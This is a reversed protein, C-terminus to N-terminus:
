GSVPFYLLPYLFYMSFQWLFHIFDLSHATSWFTDQLTLIFIFNVNVYCWAIQSVLFTEPPFSQCRGTPRSIWAKIVALKFLFLHCTTKGRGRERSIIIEQIECSRMRWFMLFRFRFFHLLLYKGPIRTARKQPGMRFSGYATFVLPYNHYIMHM